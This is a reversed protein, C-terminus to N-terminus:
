DTQPTQNSSKPSSPNARKQRATEAASDTTTQPIHLPTHVSKNKKKNDTKKVAAPNRSCSKCAPM